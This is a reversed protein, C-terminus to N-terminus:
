ADAQAAARQKLFAQFEQPNLYFRGDASQRLGKQELFDVLGNFIVAVQDRQREMRAIEARLGGFNKELTQALGAFMPHVNKLHFNNIAAIVERKTAPQDM